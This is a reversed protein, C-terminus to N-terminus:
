EQFYKIVINVYYTIQPFQHLKTYLTHNNTIRLMITNRTTFGYVKIHHIIGKVHKVTINWRTNKIIGYRLNVEKYTKKYNYLM